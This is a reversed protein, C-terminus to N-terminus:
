FLRSEGRGGMTRRGRVESSERGNWGKSPGQRSSARMSSNSPKCSQWKAMNPAPMRELSAELQSRKRKLQSVQNCHEMHAVFEDERFVRQCIECLLVEEEESCESDVREALM